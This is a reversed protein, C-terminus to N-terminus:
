LVELIYADIFLYSQKRYLEIKLNYIPYPRSGHIILHKKICLNREFM